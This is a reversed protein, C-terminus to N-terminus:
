HPKDNVNIMRIQGWTVTGPKVVTHRKNSIYNYIVLHSQFLPLKIIIIETNTQGLRLHSCYLCWNICTIVHPQSAFRTMLPNVHSWFLFTQSKQRMGRKNKLNLRCMEWTTQKRFTKCHFNHTGNEDGQTSNTGGM